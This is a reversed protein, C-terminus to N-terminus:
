IYYFERFVDEYLGMIREAENHSLKFESGQHAIRNRIKHAEWAKNITVFDSEEVNKLQEGISDGDYGIKTLMEELMVDAEIIAQRWDSSNQSAILTQVHKWKENVLPRAEMEQLNKQQEISLKTDKKKSNLKELASEKIMVYILALILIISIFIAIGRLNEVLIPIINLILFAKVYASLDSEDVWGDPANEFDLLWWTTGFAVEPGSMVIATSRKDQEGIIGGGPVRRVVLDSLAIVKSDKEIDGNPFFSTLRFKRNEKTSDVQEEVGSTVASEGGEYLRSLIGDNNRDFATQGDDVVTTNSAKDGEPAYLFAGGAGIILLIIFIWATTDSHSGDM